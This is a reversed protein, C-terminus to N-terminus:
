RLFFIRERKKRKRKLTPMVFGFHIEWNFNKPGDLVLFGVTCQTAHRRANWRGDFGIVIDSNGCIDVMMFFYSLCVDHFVGEMYSCHRFYANRGMLGLEDLITGSYGRNMSQLILHLEVINPGSHMFEIPGKRKRLSSFKGTADRTLKRKKRRGVSRLQKELLVEKELWGKNIKKKTKKRFIIMRQVVALLNKELFSYDFKQILLLNMSKM